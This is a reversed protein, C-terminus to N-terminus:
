SPWIDPRRKQLHPKYRAWGKASLSLCSLELAGQARPTQAAYELQAFGWAAAVELRLRRSRQERRSPAAKNSLSMPELLIAIAVASLLNLAPMLQWRNRANGEGSTHEQVGAQSHFASCRNRSLVKLM